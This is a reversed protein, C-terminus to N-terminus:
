SAATRALQLMPGLVSVTVFLVVVGVALILAPELLALFRALATEYAQRCRASAQELMKGLSGASEGVKMWEAVHPAIPELTQAAQFLTAGSKVDGAAKEALGALWASGTAAGSVAIASQPAVGAGVLLSMTGAFRHAWLLPLTRRTLPLRALVKEVGTATKADTRARSRLWLAGLGAGALLAIFLTMGRPGWEALLRAPRPLNDGIKSFVDIARPLVVYVMFALLGTALVLVALPYALAARIRESVKRESEIFEALSQLMGGQFGAEESARLATREFAPLSPLLTVLAESLSVGDRVLGRLHLPLVADAGAGAEGILLGFAQELSFGADLLVGLASYFSAREAASVRSPPRAPELSETLVGSEALAARAAKPSDAETVGTRRRGDPGRGRYAYLSM